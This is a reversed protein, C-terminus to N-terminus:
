SSMLARSIDQIEHAHRREHAGVFAIWGYLSLDGLAPHPRKATGLALDGNAALVERLGERARALAKMSEAVTMEGSPVVRPPAVLKTTRDTVRELGLTHLIPSVDTATGLGGIREADFWGSFVTNFRTELVALHELVEEVSWSEPNPRLLHKEAPVDDVASRLIETSEDVYELLEQLRPNM